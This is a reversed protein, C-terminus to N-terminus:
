SKHFCSGSVVHGGAPNRCKWLMELLQVFLEHVSPNVWCGVTRLYLCTVLLCFEAHKRSGRRKFVNMSIELVFCGRSSNPLNKKEWLFDYLQKPQFLDGLADLGFSGLITLKVVM